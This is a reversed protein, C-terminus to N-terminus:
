YDNDGTLQNSDSAMSASHWNLPETYQVRHGVMLVNEICL